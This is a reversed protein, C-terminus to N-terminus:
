IAGEQRLRQVAAVAAQNMSEKKSRGVGVGLQDGEVWVGMRFVSEHAPGTKDILEYNPTTQYQRQCWEMLVQKPPIYYRVAEARHTFHHRIIAHCNELGDLTYIAGLIAEVTNALTKEKERGGDRAEGISLRIKQGLNLERAIDALTQTDVLQHRMRTLDGERCEPFLKTLLDTVCLQLVSDGLFELRENHSGAEPFQRIYSSHTLAEVFLPKSLDYYLEM